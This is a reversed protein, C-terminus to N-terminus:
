NSVKYEGEYVKCDRATTKEAIEAVIAMREALCAEEMAASDPEFIINGRKDFDISTWVRITHPVASSVYYVPTIINLCEPLDGAGAAQQVVSRGLKATVNSAEAEFNDTTSIKLNRIANLMRGAADFPAFQQRMLKIAANQPHSCTLGMQRLLQYLPHFRLPLTLVDKPNDEVCEITISSEGVWVNTRHSTERQNNIWNTLSEVSRFVHANDPREREVLVMEKKAPDWVYRKRKSPSIDNILTPVVRSQDTFFERLWGLGDKLMTM